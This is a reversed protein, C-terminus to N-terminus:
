LPDSTIRHRGRIWTHAHTLSLTRTRLCSLTYSRSVGLGTHPYTSANNEWSGICKHAAAHTAGPREIEGPSPKHIKKKGVLIQTRYQPWFNQRCLIKSGWEPERCQQSKWKQKAERAFLRRRWREGGSEDEKESGASQIKGSTDCLWCM